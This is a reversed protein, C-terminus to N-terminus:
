ETSPRELLNSVSASCILRTLRRRAGLGLVPVGCEPEGYQNVQQAETLFTNRDAVIEWRDFEIIERKHRATRYQVPRHRGSEAYTGWPDGVFLSVNVGTEKRSLCGDLRSPTERM